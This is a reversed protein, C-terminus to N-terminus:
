GTLKRRRGTRDPRGAGRRGRPIREGVDKNRDAKHQSATVLNAREAPCEFGAFNLRGSRPM